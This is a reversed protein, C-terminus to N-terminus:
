VGGSNWRTKRTRGLRGDPQAVDGALLRTALDAFDDMTQMRHLETVADNSADLVVRGRKLTDALLLYHSSVGDSTPNLCTVLVLDTAASVTFQWFAEGGRRTHRLGIRFGVRFADDVSTVGSKLLAGTQLEISISGIGL